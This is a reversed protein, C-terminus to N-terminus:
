GGQETAPAAVVIDTSIRRGNGIATGTVTARTTVATGAAALAAEFAARARAEVVAVACAPDAALLSAAGAGDTLRVNSGLAFVLGPEAYGAVAVRPAPCPASGAVAAAIRPAPFLTQLTPAAIGLVAAYLVAALGLLAVAAQPLTGRSAAIAAPVAAAAVVAVLAAATVPGADGFHLLAGAAAIALAVAIAVSLLLGGRLLRGGAVAGRVAMAATLLAIAPYFPLTYHPLKTTVAEFVLWGPVIWALCFRVAPEHRARWVAPAAALAFAAGPWAIAFFVALHTGPPAGHSEQGAAIKGALDQGVSAGWFAGDSLLTIATLWPAVVAVVIALGTIPRLRALWRADRDAIALAALTLGAVLPAIPGKVLIAAALALWFGYVAVAPAAPEDARRLYIRALAIQCGLTLALLVADTKALRAEVGLIVSGAMFLAALLGAARGFLVCGAAYTLLAAALAGALSPLRYIAIPADAGAGSLVAAGAQLWYIGIPKKYRHGDLFHLDVLDGTEVMQRSTQAFRAEDRDVPPITFFGPLVCVLAFLVIAAAARRHSALLSRWLKDLRDSTPAAITDVAM